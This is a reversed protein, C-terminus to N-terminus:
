SWSGRFNLYKLCIEGRKPTAMVLLSHPNALLCKLPPLEKMGVLYHWDGIGQCETGEINVSM